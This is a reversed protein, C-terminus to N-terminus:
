INLAISKMKVNKYGQPRLSADLASSNYEKGNGQGEEERNSCKSGECHREVKTATERHRVCILFYCTVSIM